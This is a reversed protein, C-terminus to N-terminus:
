SGAQEHKTQDDDAHDIDYGGLSGFGTPSGECCLLLRSLLSEGSILLPALFSELSLALGGLLRCRDSSLGLGLELSGLGRSLCFSIADLPGLLVADL